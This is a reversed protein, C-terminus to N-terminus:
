SGREFVGERVGVWVLGGMGEVEVGGEVGWGVGLGQAKMGLPAEGPSVM